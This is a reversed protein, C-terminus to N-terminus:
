KGRPGPSAPAALKAELHAHKEKLAALLKAKMETSVLSSEVVKAQRDIRALEKVVEDVDM